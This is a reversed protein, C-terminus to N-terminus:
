SRPTVMTSMREVLRFPVPTGVRSDDFGSQVSAVLEDVAKAGIQRIPQHVTTLPPWVIESVPTDDFGVISIDQPIHLGLKHATLLAGAAMDDNACVLATPRVTAAMMEASLEIGSKFTFNGRAVAVADSGMGASALAEAFGEFRLGASVHAELGDIYAFKRHGLRVLFDGIARGAAKDDIGVWAAIRQVEPGASVCVVPCNRAMISRVLDVNDSYPPTLILGDYQGSHVLDIIRLDDEKKSPNATHTVLSYGHEACARLAGLELGSNYYSNPEAETDTAHILAFQRGSGSALHRAQANVQYGLQTVARRVRDRVEDRVNPGNNLVRSVTTRGVGAHVAVDDITPKKTM